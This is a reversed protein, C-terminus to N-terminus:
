YFFLLTGRESLCDRPAIARAHKRSVKEPQVKLTPSFQKERASKTPLIVQMSFTHVSTYLLYRFLSLIAPIGPISQARTSKRGVIERKLSIQEPENLERASSLVRLYCNLQTYVKREEENSSDSRDIFRVILLTRDEKSGICWYRFDPVVGPGPSSRWSFLRLTPYNYEHLQKM